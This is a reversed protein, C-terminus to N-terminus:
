CTALSTGRWRTARSQRRARRADVRRKRRPPRSLAGDPRSPLPGAAPAPEERAGAEAGRGGGRRPQPPDADAGDDPARRRGRARRRFTVALAGRAADTKGTQLYALGLFYHLEINDRAWTRTAELYPLAEACGDRATSRLALCRSRKAASWRARRRAADRDADPDRDGECSRRRPVAGARAPVRRSAGGCRVAAAAGAGTRNTGVPDARPDIGGDAADPVRTQAAVARSQARTCSVLSSSQWSRRHCASAASSRTNM